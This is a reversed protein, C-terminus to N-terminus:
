SAQCEGERQKVLATSESVSPAQPSVQDLEKDDRIGLSLLAWKGQHLLGPARSPLKRKTGEGRVAQLWDRLGGLNRKEM